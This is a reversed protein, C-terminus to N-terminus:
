GSIPLAAAARPSCRSISMFPTGDTWSEMEKRIVQEQILIIVQLQISHEQHVPSPVIALTSDDQRGAIRLLEANLRVKVM